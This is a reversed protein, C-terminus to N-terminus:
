CCAYGGLFLCTWGAGWILLSLMLAAAKKMGPHDARRAPGEAAAADPGATRRRGHDAGPSLQRHRGRRRPVDQGQSPQRPHGQLRPLFHEPHRPPEVGEQFIVLDVRGDATDAMPAIKMAGGTFKSNSIVLASDTVEMKEGDVTLLLRNNMGRAM